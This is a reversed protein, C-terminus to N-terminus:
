GLWIEQASSGGGTMGLSRLYAPDRVVTREGVRVCELFVSALEPVALAQQQQLSSLREETLLRLAGVSLATLALDAVPSEQVDIVRIEISGRGFRPIAGRSNLFEDQLIGEPDLPAVDAYMRGLIQGEYDEQRFVPEPIVQGTVSPIRRSNHRYFEMRNDLIGTARGEVLPSSAALAPLLPLLLRISAHLRGFEEDDGFPLNLHTSQLNSWGHGQCGFIRDYSEYVPSYEHPWLTTETKPDMWPHMATPLLLGGLGDLIESIRAM